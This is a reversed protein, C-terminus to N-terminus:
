LLVAKKVITNGDGTNLRFYYIGPVRNYADWRIEHEGTSKSENILTEIQQGTMNYVDIRIDAPQLVEFTITTSGTFPNPYNSLKLENVIRNGREFIGTTGLDLTAESAFVPALNDPQEPIFPIGDGDSDNGTKGTADGESLQMANAVKKFFRTYIAAAESHNGTLSAERLAGSIIAFNYPSYTANDNGFTTRFAMKMSVYYNNILYNYAADAAVLYDTNSTLNYAAYLGVQRTPRFSAM